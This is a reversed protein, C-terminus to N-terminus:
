DPIQWANGSADAVWVTPINPAVTLAGIYTIGSAAVPPGVCLGEPRSGALSIKAVQTGTTTYVFVFGASDTIWLNDDPGSIIGNPYSAFGAGVFAGTGGTTTAYLGGSNSDTFWMRGDPGVCVAVPLIGSVVYGVVSSSGPAVKVLTDTVGALWLDGDPGLAIGTLSNTVIAGGVLTYGTVSGATSISQLQDITGSGYNNPVWLKGAAVCIAWPYGSVSYSVAATPNTPDIKWVKSLSSDTAWLNGDPGVCIGRIAGIGSIAYNTVTGNATVKAVGYFELSVWLDSGLLCIGLPATLSGTPFANPIGPM